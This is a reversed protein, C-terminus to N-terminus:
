WSGHCGFSCAVVSDTFAAAFMDHLSAVAHTCLGRVKLFMLCPWTLAEIKWPLGCRGAPLTVIRFDGAYFMVMSHCLLPTAELAGFTHCM